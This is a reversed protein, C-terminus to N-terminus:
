GITLNKTGNLLHKIDLISMSALADTTTYEMMGASNKGCKGPKNEDILIVRGYTTEAFLLLNRDFLSKNDTNPMEGVADNPEIHDAQTSFNATADSVAYKTGASVKTAKTTGSKDSHLLLGMAVAKRMPFHFEVPPTAFGNGHLLYDAMLTVHGSPGSQYLQQLICGFPCSTIAVDDKLLKSNFPDIGLSDLVTGLDWGVFVYRKQILHLLRNNAVRKFPTALMVIGFFGGGLMMLSLLVVFDIMIESNWFNELSPAGGFIGRSSNPANVMFSTGGRVKLLVYLLFCLMLSYVKYSLFLTSSDIYWELVHQHHPRIMKMAKLSRAGLKLLLRVVTHLFCMLWTMRTIASAMFIFNDMTIHMSLMWQGIEYVSYTMRVSVLADLISLLMYLWHNIWVDSAMIVKGKFRIISNEDDSTWVSLNMFPFIYKFYRRVGGFRLKVPVYNVIRLKALTNFVGRAVLLLTVIGYSYTVILTFWGTNDLAVKVEAQQDLPETQFLGYNTEFDIIRPVALCKSSEFQIHYSGGAWFAQHVMLDTIYMFSAPPRGTCRLFPMGPRGFDGPVGNQIARKKSLDDFNDLIYRHCDDTSNNNTFLCETFWEPNFNIVDCRPASISHFFYQSRRAGKGWFDDFYVEAHTVNISNVRMCTSRDEGLNDPSRTPASFFRFSEGVRTLNTLTDVNLFDDRVLNYNIRREMLRARMEDYRGTVLVILPNERLGAMLTLATSALNVLLVLAKRLPLGHFENGM